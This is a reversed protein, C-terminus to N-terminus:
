NRRLRKDDGAAEQEWEKVVSSAATDKLKVLQRADNLAEDRRGLSHFCDARMELALLYWKSGYPALSLAKNADSLAEVYKNLHELADARDIYFEPRSPALKISMGSDDVAQTFEKRLRHMIARTAYRDATPATRIQENVRALDADTAGAPRQAQGSVSHCTCFLLIASSAIWFNRQNTM